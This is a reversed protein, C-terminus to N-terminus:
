RHRRRPFILRSLSNLRSLDGEGIKAVRYRTNAADSASLSKNINQRVALPQQAFGAVKVSNPRQNDRRSPRTNPNRWGRVAMNLRGAPIGATALLISIMVGPSTMAIERLELAKWIKGPRQRTDACSNPAVQSKRTDRALFDQRSDHLQEISRQDAHAIILVRLLVAGIAECGEAIAVGANPAGGDGERKASLASLLM